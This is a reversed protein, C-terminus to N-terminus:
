NNLVQFMLLSICETNDISVMVKEKNHEVICLHKEIDSILLKDISVSLFDALCKALKLSMNGTCFGYRLTTYKVGLSRSLESLDQINKNKLLRFIYEQDLM